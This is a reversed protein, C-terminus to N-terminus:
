CTEISFSELTVWDSQSLLSTRWYIFLIILVSASFNPIFLSSEWYPFGRSIGEAIQILTQARWCIWLHSLTEQTVWFLIRFLPNWFICFIWLICYSYPIYPHHYMHSNRFLSHSYLSPIKVWSFGGDLLILVSYHASSYLTKVPEWLVPDFPCSIVYILAFIFALHLTYKEYFEFNLQPVRGYSTTSPILRFPTM